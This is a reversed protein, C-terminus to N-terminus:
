STIADTLSISHDFVVGHDHLQKLVDADCVDNVFICVADHGEALPATTQDLRADFYSLKIDPTEKVAPSFSNNDYQFTMDAVYQVLRDWSRVKRTGFVAVKM